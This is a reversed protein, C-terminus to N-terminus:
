HGSFFCFCPVSLQFYILHLYLWILFHLWHDYRVEESGDSQSDRHTLWTWTYVDMDEGHLQRHQEQLGPLWQSSVDQMNETLFLQRLNDLRDVCRMNPCGEVRLERVQPLNSVRELSECDIILLIESLFCLNEVVKLSHLDRLQLEKLSTAEQGLQQPLARLKPCGDLVLDKLRPLLQMRPPPADGKQKTVVEDARGERGETTANQEEKVVFSWEELNPMDEIILAELKPFAVAVLSRLNGVGSGVFDPGIKSVETAGHVRLYKLNPLQGIPPLHV